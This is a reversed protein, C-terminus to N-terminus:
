KRRFLGFFSIFALFILILLGFDSLIEFTYPLINKHYEWMLKIYESKIIDIVLNIAAFLLIGATINSCIIRIIKNKAKFSYYTITCAIITTIIFVFIKM